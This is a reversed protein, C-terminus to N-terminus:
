EEKQKKKEEEWVFLLVLLIALCITAPLCVYLPKKLMLLSYIAGIMIVSLVVNSIKQLIRPGLALLFGGILECLGVATMFVLPDVDVGVKRLPFVKAFKVFEELGEAYLEASVQDTLKLAGSFMFLIGVVQRLAEFILAM